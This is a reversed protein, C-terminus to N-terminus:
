WGGERRRRAQQALSRNGFAGFGGRRNARRERAQAQSRQFSDSGRQESLSRARQGPSSSPPTSVPRADSAASNAATTGGGNGAGQAYIDFM